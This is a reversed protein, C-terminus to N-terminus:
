TPFGLQNEWKLLIFSTDNQWVKDWACGTMVQGSKKMLNMHPKVIVIIAQKKFDILWM